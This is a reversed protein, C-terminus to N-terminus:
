CHTAGLLSSRVATLHARCHPASLPSTREAAFPARCHLANATTVVHVAIITHLTFHACHFLYMCPQLFACVATLM